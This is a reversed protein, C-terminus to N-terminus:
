CPKNCATEAWCRMEVRGQRFAVRRNGVSSEMGVEIFYLWGVSFHEQCSWLAPKSNASDPVPIDRQSGEFLEIRNWSLVAFPRRNSYCGSISISLLSLLIVKWLKLNKDPIICLNEIRQEHIPLCVLPLSHILISPKQARPLNTPKRAGVISSPALTRLFASTSISPFSPYRRLFRRMLVRLQQNLLLSM